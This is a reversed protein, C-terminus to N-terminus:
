RWCADLEARAQVEEELDGAERDGAVHAEVDQDLERREFNEATTEARSATRAPPCSSRVTESRNLRSPGAGHIAAPVALKM